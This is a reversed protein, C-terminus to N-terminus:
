DFGFTFSSVLRLRNYTRVALASDRRDYDANFRLVAEPAIRYAVTGGLHVIHEAWPTTDALTLGALPIVPLTSAGYELRQRGATAGLEWGDAIRATVSGTLGTVIYYREAAMYSHDLDREIKMGFRIPEWPNYGLDLSAVVTGADPYSGDSSTRTRYGVYAKGSVFATPAFELGSLIRVGNGNRFSSFDFRDHEVDGAVVITTLPTVADRLSAMVTDEARSLADRLDVPALSDAAFDFKAHRFGAGIQTKGTVQVNVGGEFTKETRPLRADLEPSFIDRTRLYSDSSYLTVRNLRFDLTFADTTDVSRQETHQDFYSLGVAAIGNLSLPGTELSPEARLRVHGITDRQPDVATGLINTDIGVDNLTISPRLLFAPRDPPAAKAPVHTPQGPAQAGPQGDPPLPAAAPAPVLLGLVAALVAPSLLYFM